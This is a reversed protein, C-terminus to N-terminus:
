VLWLEPALQILKTLADKSFKRAFLHCFEVESAGDDDGHYKYGCKGDGQRMGELLEATIDKEPFSRPHERRTSWDVYTLTRNKCRAGWRLLTVLTPLYHEEMNLMGHDGRFVAYWREEAVVEVATTRDMEFWQSGKRWQALSINRDAFFPDHREKIPYSDVFSVNTNSGGTLHAYVAPFGLLPICSESFLAFRANGLDLLATALLRREADVLNMDGWKTGQSPILRGYFVSEKPALDTYGPSAHVYISYLEKDQGNFFIEWLPWLPLAGQVLFLFAVKPVTSVQTSRRPEMSARWLLEEDTMNHMPGGSSATLRGSEMFTPLKVCAKKSAPTPSLARFNPLYSEPSFTASGIKGLVFGFSILLLVPFLNLMSGLHLLQMTKATNSAM